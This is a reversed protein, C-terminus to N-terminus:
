LRWELARDAMYVRYLEKSEPRTPDLRPDFVVRGGAPFEDAALRDVALSGELELERSRLGSRLRGKLAVLSAQIKGGFSAVVDKELSCLSLVQDDPTTVRDVTITGACLVAGGDVVRLGEPLSLDGSAIRVVGGLRLQATADLFLQKFETEDAVTVVSKRDFGSGDVRNLDGKFHASEGERGPIEVSTGPNPYDEAPDFAERDPPFKGQSRMYDAATNYPERDVLVSMYRSYAEWDGFLTSYHMSDPDLGITGGTSLNPIELPLADTTDLDGFQEEPVAALMRVVGDRVGDGDVDVTVASYIPYSHFVRGLVRTPSPELSSGYLHLTSSRMNTTTDLYLRLVGDRNMDQPDDRSQDITFYGYLAHKIAFRQQQGAFTHPTQFFPPPADNLFAAPRSTDLALFNYFHFYQGFRYEGGSTLNLVVERDGGLFIWGHKDLDDDGGLGEEDSYVVVPHVNASAPVNPDPSGTIDNAFRNYGAATEDTPDPSRVFLSFKSVVPLAMNVIRIPRREVVTQRSGRHYGTSTIVVTATKEGPDRGQSLNDPDVLPGVAELAVKVEVGALDSAPIFQELPVLWGEPMPLPAVGAPPSDLIAKTTVSNPDLIAQRVSDIAHNVGSEAHSQASLSFYILHAKVNQDRVMTYFTFALVAMVTGLGLVLWLVVGSNAARGQPLTRM